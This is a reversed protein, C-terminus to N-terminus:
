VSPAPALTSDISNYLKKSQLAILNYEKILASYAQVDSNIAARVSQIYDVRAILNARETNFQSQSEFGNNAARQNFSVIDENLIQVDKNYTDTSREIHTALAEIRAGLERAKSDLERFISNYAANLAVVKQRDDFYNAYHAELEPSIDAVETGIVSHLENDRQGPETRAYFAMREKFRDDNELKEYEAEVLANVRERESSSLRVYVAHLTEHAATVERIGDLDPNTINYIYIRYNTYCGLISTTKEVRDCVKNFDSADALQPQSALYLFIGDDNMGAREVLNKVEETPQYQWVTLQDIAQQRNFVLFLSLVVLVASILASAILGARNRKKQLM